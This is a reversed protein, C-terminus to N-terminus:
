FFGVDNLIQIRASSLVFKQLFLYKIRLTEYSKKTSAGSATDPDLSIETFSFPHTHSNSNNLGLLLNRTEGHVTSNNIREIVVLCIPYKLNRM